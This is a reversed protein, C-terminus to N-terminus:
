MCLTKGFSQFDVHPWLCSDPYVSLRQSTSRGALERVVYYILCSGRDINHQRIHHPEVPIKHIFAVLGVLLRRQSKPDREKQREREGQRATKGISLKYICRIYVYVYIFLGVSIRVAESALWLWLSQISSLQLPYMTDQRVHLVTLIYTRRTDPITEQSLRCM